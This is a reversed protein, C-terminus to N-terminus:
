PGVVEAGNTPYISEFREFNTSGLPIIEIKESYNPDEIKASIYDVAAEQADLEYLRVIFSDADIDYEIDYGPRQEPLTSIFNNRPSNSPLQNPDLEILQQNFVVNIRNNSLIEVTTQVPEEENIEFYGSFSMTDNQTSISEGNVFFIVEEELKRYEDFSEVGLYKVDERLLEFSATPLSNLLESYEGSFLAPTDAFIPEEATDNAPNSVFSLIFLVVAGIFLLAAVILKAKNSNMM